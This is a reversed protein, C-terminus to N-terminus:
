AEPTAEYAPLSTRQEVDLVTRELFDRLVVDPRYMQFFWVIREGQKRYRLRCILRDKDAGVFLPINVVFLGPVILKQGSGDKHVEEYVVESEGSQLTRVEKVRADVSIEMGRSMTVLDSPTAFKTKFLGEYTSSEQDMPSALDAIHDEIFSAWASQSMAEGNQGHWAKWEESVPFTYSIKHGLYAPGHDLGHYDIVALLSPKALDLQAFIASNNNMHRSVLDVFADITGARATGIIREPATRWEDLQKKISFVAVGGNAAPVGIIQIPDPRISAETINLVQVSTGERALDAIEKVGENDM